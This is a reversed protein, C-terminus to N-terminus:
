NNRFAYINLQNDMKDYTDLHSFPSDSSLGPSSIHLRFGAAKLVNLMEPLMQEQNVFSHFEIFIRDVNFLLDKIDFLVVSEAGEIDIKLFDVKTNLFDKLRITQVQLINESDYELAVRGADAGESFFHL